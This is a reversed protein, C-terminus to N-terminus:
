ARAAHRLPRGQVKRYVAFSKTGKPVDRWALQPSINGGDCGFGKFEQAKPMPKGTQRAIDVLRKTNGSNRGGVVIVADVSRAM